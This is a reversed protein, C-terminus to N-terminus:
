IRSRVEPPRCKELRSSSNEGNEIKYQYQFLGRPPPGAARSGDSYTFAATARACSSTPSRSGACRVDSTRAISLSCRSVRGTSTESGALSYRATQGDWADAVPNRFAFFNTQGAPFSKTTRWSPSGRITVATGDVLLPHRLTVCFRCRDSNCRRSRSFLLGLKALLARRSPGTSTTLPFRKEKHPRRVDPLTLRSISATAIRALPLLTPFADGHAPMRAEAPSTM